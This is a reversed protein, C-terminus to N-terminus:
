AKMQDVFRMSFDVAQVHKTLAGIAIRDIGTEAIAVLPQLDIGGSAELQARPCRHQEAFAHAFAVAERIQTVDFNDLLILTAGATLAEELEALTEVEIEIFSAHDTQTERAKAFAQTVSGAAMIHNEKILFADDLGMRHNHGGGCRVAYKQATRLGPLTKRTDYIQAATHAVAQVHQHTLTATGSLTQMFNLACREATLLTRAPGQLEGVIQGPDLADGDEARWHCTINPDVQHFSEHAYPIGCLMAREKCVIHATACAKADILQATLDRAAQPGSHNTVTDTSHLDEHLAMSVTRSLDHPPTM